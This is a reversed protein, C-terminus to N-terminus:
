RCIKNKLFSTISGDPISIWNSITDNGGGIIEGNQKYSTTRIQRYTMNRCDVELVAITYSTNKFEGAFNAISEQSWDRRVQASAMGGGTSTVSTTDYYCTGGSNDNCLYEWNAALSISSGMLLGVMVLVLGIKKM